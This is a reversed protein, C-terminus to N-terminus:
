LISEGIILKLFITLCRIFSIVIGSKLGLNGGFDLIKKTRLNKLLFILVLFFVRFRTNQNNMLNLATKFVAMRSEFLHVHVM